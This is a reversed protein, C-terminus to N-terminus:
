FAPEKSKHFTYSCRSRSSTRRNDPDDLLKPDVISLTVPM